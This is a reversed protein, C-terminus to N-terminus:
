ILCLVEDISELGIHEMIYDINKSDSINKSHFCGM